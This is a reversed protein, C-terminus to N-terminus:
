KTCHQNLFGFVDEAWVESGFYGFSHGDRPSDGYPPYIKLKYTKSVLNMEASLTKSPSVDFDNAAHFFFIPAKANRVARTMLSQLEPAQAWSQAGGASDIGCLIRRTRSGACNRHWWVLKGGGRHSEISRFETKAVVSPSRVSREFSGDGIVAGDNRCGCLRRRSERCGRDSRWYVPRGLCEIGAGAPLTWLIGM